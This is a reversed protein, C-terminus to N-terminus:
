GVILYLKSADWTGLATYAAQTGTWWAPVASAAAVAATQAVVAADKAALAAAASTASASAAADAIDETAEDVVGMFMTDFALAFDRLDSGLNAPDTDLPYPLGNTTLGTAM